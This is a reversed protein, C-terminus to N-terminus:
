RYTSSEQFGFGLEDTITVTQVYESAKQKITAAGTSTSFTYRGLTIETQAGSDLIVLNSGDKNTNSVPIWVFQNNQDDEIVIGMQVTEGLDTRVKFGGPVTIPNGNKDEAKITGSQIKTLATVLPKGNPGRPILSANGDINNLYDGVTKDATNLKDQEEIAVQQHIDKAEQIKAIIGNEGLVAFISITSLIVSIVITIVLAILTIGRNEKMINVMRIQSKVKM